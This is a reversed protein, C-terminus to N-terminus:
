SKLIQIYSTMVDDNVFSNSIFKFLSACCTTDNHVDDIVFEITFSSTIIINVHEKLLHVDGFILYKVFSNPISSTCLSVVHQTDNNVDIDIENTFHKINPSISKGKTDATNLAAIM